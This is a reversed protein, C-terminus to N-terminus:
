TFIYKIFHRLILLILVYLTGKPDAMDFMVYKGAPSEDHTVATWTSDMDNRLRLIPTIDGAFTNIM